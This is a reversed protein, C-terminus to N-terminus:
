KWLRCLLECGQTIGTGPSSVGEGPRQAGFVLAICVYMCAFFGYVYFLYCMFYTPLSPWM